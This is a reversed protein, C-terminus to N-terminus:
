FLEEQKRYVFVWSVTGFTPNRLTFNENSVGWAM